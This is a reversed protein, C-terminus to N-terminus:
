ACNSLVSHKSSSRRPLPRPFTQATDDALELLQPLASQGQNAFLWAMALTRVKPNEHRRLASVEEPSTRKLVRLIPKESADASASNILHALTENYKRAEAAAVRPTLDRGYLFDGWSFFPLRGAAQEFDDRVGSAGSAPLLFLVVLVSILLPRMFPIAPTRYEDSGVSGSRDIPYRGLKRIRKLRRFAEIPNFGANRPPFHKRESICPHLM